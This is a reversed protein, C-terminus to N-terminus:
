FIIKLIEDSIGSFLPLNEPNLIASSLQIPNDNKLYM